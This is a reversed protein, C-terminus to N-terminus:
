AIKAKKQKTLLRSRVSWGLALVTLIGAAWTGPEPVPALGDPIVEAMDAGFMAFYTGSALGAPDVFQIMSLQGVSIGGVLSSDGFLLQEAGGGTLLTGSWNLISLM